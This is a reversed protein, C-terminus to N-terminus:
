DWERNTCRDCDTRNRARRRCVSSPTMAKGDGGDNAAQRCSGDKAGRECCWPGIVSVGVVGDIEPRSTVDPTFAEPVSPTPMNAAYLIAVSAARTRRAM